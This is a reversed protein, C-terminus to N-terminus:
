PRGCEAAIALAVRLGDVASSMIGGAYGAGEGCPYLGSPVGPAVPAQLGEDRLIRLPSSSRAEVGTLVAQEHAFGRLRRDLAPLAEVLADAVFGPLCRHLDCWRVGLPYTPEVLTSPSGARGAVLDGVTQAPAQYPTGGADAALRYAARELEQQWAVMALPGREPLDDPRVEVLLASNANAGDRGHLSMGNVCVGGPESSAAVVSGGPCMCFTYVGRGEATRAALKYRAAGLLPHGAAAGYQARDVLAQPHEIRAGVAFPKREMALGARELLAFTDRASHGCAVVLRSAPLEEARGKPGTLGVSRLRGQGFAVGDLRTRFRVEGGLAVIRERLRLVVGRLLDTGIHPQADVLIDAPAGAEVFAELVHRIHPSRIGTGLKGDSFTGAGGEGFQVNSEPDLAGTRAFREVDAVREGVPAGREVVLPRLGAEALALACFLGAPGMGVVVPRPETGRGVRPVALPEPPEYPRLNVGRAPRLSADDPVEAMVTAVFRVAGKKRADISRRLLRAKRVEAPAVGLARAVAERLAVEQEAETGALADLPLRLNSLEVRM